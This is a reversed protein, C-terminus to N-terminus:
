VLGKSAAHDGLIRLSVENGIDTRVVLMESSTELWWRPVWKPASWDTRDLRIAKERKEALTATIIVYAEDPARM